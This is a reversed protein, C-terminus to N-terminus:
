LLTLDDQEMFQEFYMNEIEMFENIGLFLELKTYEDVGLYVMGM